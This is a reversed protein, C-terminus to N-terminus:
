KLRPSIFSSLTLLVANASKCWRESYDTNRATTARSQLLLTNRSFDHEANVANVATLSLNVTILLCESCDAYSESYDALVQTVNM